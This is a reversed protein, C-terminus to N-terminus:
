AIPASVHAAAAQLAQHLAAARDHGRYEAAIHAAMFSDGAGTVRAVEVTPPQYQLIGGPSGDACPHAGNTVLVRNAGRDLLAQAASTTTAFSTQCLAGAEQLNLYLTARPHRLLPALRDAKAPSAPAIRLDARAFLPSRAIQALLTQTLNGDLAAPGPWPKQATGLRGDALPRLIEDGAEELSRADAIAAILGNAAEIAMYRDTPQPTRHIHATILHLKACAEILASGEPDTGIASLLAPKLGHRALTIAINLAVGGPTRTIHGPKDDGIQLPTPSRGIIDWHAAGICLINPQTMRNSPKPVAHICSPHNRPSPGM